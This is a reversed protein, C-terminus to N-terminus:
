ARPYMKLEAKVTHGKLRVPPMHRPTPVPTPPRIRGGNTQNSVLIGNAQAEPATWVAGSALFLAVLAFVTCRRLM